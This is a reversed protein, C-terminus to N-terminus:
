IVNLLLIHVKPGNQFEMGFSFVGFKKIPLTPLERRQEKCM